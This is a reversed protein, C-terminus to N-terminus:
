VYAILRGCVIVALWLGLSLAAAVRVGRPPLQDQNWRDVKRYPGAHFVAANLGALVLAVLKLRFAANGALQVPEAAFMAVGTPLAIAIGAVSWPLVHRALARVSLSQSLGLLRLDFMAAAGVLLAFGAIHASQVLPYLWRWERMARGLGSHALADLAAATEV